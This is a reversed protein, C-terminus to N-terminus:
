GMTNSTHDKNFFNSPADALRYGRKLRHILGVRLRLWLVVFTVLGALWIMAMAFGLEPGHAMLSGLAGVGMFLFLGSSLFLGHVVPKLSIILWLIDSAEYFASACFSYLVAAATNLVLGVSLLTALALMALYASPM